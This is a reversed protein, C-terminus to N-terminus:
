LTPGLSRVVQYIFYAPLSIWVVYLVFVFVVVFIYILLGILVRLTRFIFGLIYGIFTRDQYLPEFLHRLTVPVAFTADLSMLLGLGRNWFFRAGGVYWHEFFGIFRRVFRVAIYVPVTIM